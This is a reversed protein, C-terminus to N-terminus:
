LSLSAFDYLQFTNPAQKMGIEVYAFTARLGQSV